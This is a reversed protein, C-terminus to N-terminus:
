LYRGILEMSREVVRRDKKVVDYAREGARKASARDSLLRSLERALDDKGCIEIGGGALKLDEAIRSFNAMHPGFLVPKGFRAPEMVNHGGAEVLSGGVFAIDAASYFTELEGLTDLFIVDPPQDTRGNMESRKIYSLGAGVLLKEVEPFRQPHRPALVMVLDPFVPKLGRYAALLIEEEGRHTSGAVFVRRDNGGTRLLDPLLAGPANKRNESAADKLNGTIVVREADAGLRIMREADEASQMGLGTLHGVAQSFFRRFFFYTRFSGRSLRGSLLLTPIGKRYSLRLLNPWIETELVILMRPDFVSLARGVIWLHDLPLYICADAAAVSKRAVEQGAFTFTSLVIKREPFKAKLADALRRAALVEGVSAAHIWIPRAGRMSERLKLPYFGFRQLLGRRYREGLVLFLPTLPLGLILGVTWEINYFFYQM